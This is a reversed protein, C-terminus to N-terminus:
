QQTSRPVGYDDEVEQAWEPKVKRLELLAKGYEAQNEQYGYISALNVWVWAPDQGLALSREYWRIATAYDYREQAQTAQLSVWIPSLPCWRLPVFSVAVLAALAAAPLWPRWRLVFLAAVATGFALGFAHAWNAIQMVGFQTLAVCLLLWVLFIQATQDNIIEAFRPMKQRAVWGFGFLAYGVGSMGIGAGGGFLLEASASVWAAGLFFLLWRLSGLTHELCTGLLCLWYVNFAIHWIELHVFVSTILAWPKGEWIVNDPFYGWREGVEWSVDGGLGLALFVVICFLCAVATLPAATVKSIVTSDNAM